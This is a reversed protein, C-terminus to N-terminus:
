KKTSILRTSYYECKLSVHVLRFELSGKESYPHSNTASVKYDKEDTEGKDRELATSVEEFWGWETWTM